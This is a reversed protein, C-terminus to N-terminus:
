QPIKNEHKINPFFIGNVWFGEEVKGDIYTKKGIGNINGEFFDGEYVDGNAFTM